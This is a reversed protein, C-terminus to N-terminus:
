HCDILVHLLNQCVLSYNCDHILRTITNNVKIRAAVKRKIRIM